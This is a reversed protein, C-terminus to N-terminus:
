KRTKYYIKRRWVSTKGYTILNKLLITSVTPPVGHEYFRERLIKEFDSLDMILLWTFLATRSIGLWNSLIGIEIWDSNEPWFNLKTLNQGNDQYAKKIKSPRPLIGDLLLGKYKHLLLHFYAERTTKKTKLMYDDLFKEPILLSSQTKPYETPKM